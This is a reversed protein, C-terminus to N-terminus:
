YNSSKGYVPLLGNLKYQLRGGSRLEPGLCETGPLVKLLVLSFLYYGITIATVKSSALGYVGNM